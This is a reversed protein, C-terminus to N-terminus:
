GNRKELILLSQKGFFFGSLPLLKIYLWVLFPYQPITSKTTYPLFKKLNYICKFGCLNGAEIVAKDTLPIKHDIFDWYDEKVYKINPQLVILKGNKNSLSNYCVSLAKIVEEKSNLHELINSAFIIDAKQGDLYNEMDFFSGNIAKINANAYKMTDTNLDFAIKNNAKINNIFECYGAAIDIITSNQPIFQQFFNECLVKWILNKSKLEDCNSFRNNYLEKIDM